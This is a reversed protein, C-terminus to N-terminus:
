STAWSAVTGFGDAISIEYVRSAEVGAWWDPMVTGQALTLVTPTSGSAFMVDIVGSAPPTISLTDVESCVYRHNDVGVIVPDDGTVLVDIMGSRSNVWKGATGDYTITQGDSPNSLDVDTMGALTGAGGGRAITDLYMEERTIPVDPIGAASGTAISNLYEERRTVPNGPLAM